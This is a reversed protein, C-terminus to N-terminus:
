IGFSGGSYDSFEMKKSYRISGPGHYNHSPLSREGGQETLHDDHWQYRGSFHKKVFRILPHLEKRIRM